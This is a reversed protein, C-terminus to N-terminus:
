SCAISTDIILHSSAINSTIAIPLIWDTTNNKFQSNKYKSISFVKIKFSNIWDKSFYDGIYFYSKKRKWKLIKMHPRFVIGGNMRKQM